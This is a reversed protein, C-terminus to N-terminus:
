MRFLFITSRISFNDIMRLFFIIIRGQIIRKATEFIIEEILIYRM